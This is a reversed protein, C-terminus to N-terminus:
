LDLEYMDGNKVRVLLDCFADSYKRSVSNPNLGTRTVCHYKNDSSKIDVGKERKIKELFPQAANWSVDERGTVKRAVETLTYPFMVSNASVANITTIGFLKGFEANNSVARELMEFDAEVKRRPIDHRVLDYSRHLLSRLIKPSVANLPRESGFAKFVWEFDETEIAKVRVSRGNDVEIVKETAPVYHDGAKPRWELIFINQILSGPPGQRPICADIDSLIARINPDTASYGVFLLPHETFYTLLKASLYQKRRSFDDFDTKTLVLNPYDSVCGHIKFIEGFLIQPGYIISQGIVPQHEPYIIELLKDYNTTIVAHPRINKLAAIEAQFHKDAIDEVKVPTIALLRQAVAYKLYAQENVGDTFLEAPFHNRGKDWAWQQYLKAFEEGILLPHKLSQKYFPYEREILPCERGVSALLEDWGPGGLYRRTLGSGIFLIPQCCMKEMVSAVDAAIRQRYGMQINEGVPLLANM